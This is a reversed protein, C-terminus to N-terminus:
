TDVRIAYGPTEPLAANTSRSKIAIAEGYNSDVFRRIVNIHLRQLVPRWVPRTKKYYEPPQKPLVRCDKEM